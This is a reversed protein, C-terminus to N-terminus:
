HTKLVLLMIVIIIIILYFLKRHGLYFNKFFIFDNNLWTNDQHHICYSNSLDNTPEFYKNDLIEVRPHLNKLIIKTFIKPGTTNNITFFKNHLLNYTPHEDIHEILKQIIKEKAVSIIIGNNICINTGSFFLSEFKKLELKSVILTKNKYKDLLDDLPKIMEVDIDIYVGGYIYLIIYRAYDVKQHLYIFKYYTKIWQKNLQLLKIITIEDWFYYNWSPHLLKIKKIFPLYKIPMDNFGQLWIQHINLPFM